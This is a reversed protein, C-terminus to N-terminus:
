DHPRPVRRVWWRRVAFVDPGLDFTQYGARHLLDLARRRQLGLHRQEYLIFRPSWPASFDISNLIVFDHGEADIHLLDIRNFGFQGVLSALTRCEVSIARIRQALRPIASEHFEIVDRSFSGLQDVWSPDGPEPPVWYFDQTGETETVAANAFRLGQKGGYTTKLREFLDPMPEILLGTVTREMVTRFLPDGTSGDHSGVQVFTFPPRSRKAARAVLRAADPATWRVYLSFPAWRAITSGGPLRQLYRRVQSKVHDEIVSHDEVM